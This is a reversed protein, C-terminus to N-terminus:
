RMSRKLLIGMGIFIIVGILILWGEKKDKNVKSEMKVDLAGSYNTEDSQLDIIDVTNIGMQSLYAIDKDLFGEFNPDVYIYAHNCSGVEGELLHIYKSPDPEEDSSATKYEMTITNCVETMNLLRECAQPDIKGEEGNIISCVESIYKEDGREIATKLKDLIVLAEEKSTTM